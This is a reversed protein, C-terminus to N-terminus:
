SLVVNSIYTLVVMMINLVMMVGFVLLHVKKEAYITAIFERVFANVWFYSKTPSGIGEARVGAETAYLGTRFVHYNTTAFAIKADEGSREHILKVANEINAKTNVSKDELLIRDESIGRKMLYNKIAEAESVVEDSGQGGSPVFIIDKDAVEKQMEAFEVARDARSQLLKTLTGDKKIQCGHILIYDKDFRPLHKAAKLSLVITAALISEAYIIVIGCTNEIFMEVFRGFGRWNHVDILNTTQFFYGIILPAVSAIIMLFGQFVGLMNRWTKGENKLLKVNSITVLIFVVLAIPFTFIEVGTLTNMVIYLSDVAGGQHILSIIQFFLIVCLFIIIGLHLINKYQYMNDRVSEGYKRITVAIVLGLYLIWMVRVQFSGTSHGFYDSRTITGTKHVFLVEMEKYENEYYLMVYIRGEKVGHLKIYIENRDSFVGQVEASGPSDDAVEATIEANEDIMQPMEFTLIYTDGVLLIYIYSAVALFVALILLKHNKILNM